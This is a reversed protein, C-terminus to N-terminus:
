ISKQLLLSILFLTSARHFISLYNVDCQVGFPMRDELTVTIFVAFTFCDCNMRSISDLFNTANLLYKCVCEHLGIIDRRDYPVWVASFQTMWSRIRFNILHCFAIAYVKKQASKGSTFIKQHSVWFCCFSSIHTM